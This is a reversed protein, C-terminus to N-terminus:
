FVYRYNTYMKKRSDTTQNADELLVAQKTGRRALGAGEALLKEQETAPDLNWMSSPCREQCLYRERNLSCSTGPAPSPTDSVWNKYFLANEEGRKFSNTQAINKLETYGM